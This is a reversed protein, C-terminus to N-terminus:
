VPRKYNSLINQAARYGTSIAVGGGSNEKLPNYGSLIAGACYLNKVSKGTDTCVPNLNEDTIVGFELFPHTNRSFFDPSIWRSRDEHFRTKLGFIPERIANYDATLGGSFFSGASLIYFGATLPTAGHNKTYVCELRDDTIKGGTIRDGAILVGGLTSFRSKLANDIRMGLISPPLTPIEYLHVGSMEQILQLHRTYNVIGLFAPIGAITAGMAANKIQESLQPLYEETDFIRAVDVSRYEFPNRERDGYDPFVLKGIVFEVNRFYPIRKLNGIALEPYFDRYGDFNLLAVRMRSDLVSSVHENYVSEQSLFTPKITGLSTIHFHNREGNHNLVLNETRLTEAFFELSEKISEIGCRAYPHETRGSILGELYSYPEEIMMGEEDCGIVDISGSSFHLASMGASIVACNVGNGALKIGCTLGSLGGGIILCDFNM